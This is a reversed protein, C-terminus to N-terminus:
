DKTVDLCLPCPTVVYHIQTDCQFYHAYAYAIMVTQYAMTYWHPPDVSGPYWAQAHLPCYCFPRGQTEDACHNRGM